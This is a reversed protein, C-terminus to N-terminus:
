GRDPRSRRRLGAHRSDVSPGGGVSIALGGQDGHEFREGARVRTGLRNLVRQMFTLDNNLGFIILEPHKLLGLGVTYAFPPTREDPDFAGTVHWGFQEIDTRIRERNKM